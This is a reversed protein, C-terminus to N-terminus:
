PLHEHVAELVQDDRFPKVVYDRAGLKLCEEIVADQGVATVMVVRAEPDAELVKRLTRIGEEKGGPM